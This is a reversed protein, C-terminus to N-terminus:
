VIPELPNLRHFLCTESDGAKADEWLLVLILNVFYHILLECNFVACVKLLPGNAQLFFCLVIKYM